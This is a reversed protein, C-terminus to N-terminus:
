TRRINRETCVATPAQAVSLSNPPSQNAATADLSGTSRQSPANSVIQEANQPGDSASETAGIGVSVTGMGLISVLIMKRLKNEVIWPAAM